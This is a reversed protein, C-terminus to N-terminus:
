RHCITESVASLDHPLFMEIELRTNVSMGIWLLAIFHTYNGKAFDACIGSQPFPESLIRAIGRVSM